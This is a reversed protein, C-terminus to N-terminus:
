VLVEFRFDRRIIMLLLVAIVLLLFFFTFVHSVHNNSGLMSSLDIVLVIVNNMEFNM